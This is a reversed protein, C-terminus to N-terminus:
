FLIDDSSAISVSAAEVTEIQDAMKPVIFKEVLLNLGVAADAVKAIELSTNKSSFATQDAVNSINLITENIKTAINSQEEVSVAIRTNAGHITGISSMIQGLSVNTRDIQAVSDDAQNRGKEMALTANSVGSQLSEIKKRIDITADQTRQALKRVEDAVVAFGRGQEGARAAEIAANLALLNTQDAIDAIMQTVNRIDNSEQELGHILLTSSKVEEALLHISQITKAIVQKADAAQANIADAVSVAKKSEMVSENLSQAIQRVTESALTTEEKQAKVGESTMNSVMAVRQATSSLHMASSKVDGILKGLDVNVQFASRAISGIEDNGYVCIEGTFDGSGLKLLDSKLQHAPRVVFSILWGLVFYLFIQVFLLVGWLFYKAKLIEAYQTELDLTISAAGNVTGEAVNHCTLCNTGRFEKKAIFPVVVRLTHKGDLMQLSNQLKASLLANRDMDDIPQEEPLGAGFQDQVPKNRMVRLSLVGESASMKKIYLQRQDPSSIIGNIMLMNLGNLVGDASVLAESKAGDLVFNEFKNLASQQAFIMLLLLVPQIALQLKFKLSLNNWWTQM